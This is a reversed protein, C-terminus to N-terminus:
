ALLCRKTSLDPGIDLMIPRDEVIALKSAHQLTADSPLRYGNASTTVASSNAPKSM